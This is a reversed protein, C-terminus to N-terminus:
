ADDDKYYPQEYHSMKLNNIGVGTNYDRTAAAQYTEMKAAQYEALRDQLKQIYKAVSEFDSNVDEPLVLGISDEFDQYVCFEGFNQGNAYAEDYIKWYEDDYNM